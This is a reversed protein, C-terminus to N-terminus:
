ITIWEKRVAVGIGLYSGNVSDYQQTFEAFEYIDSHTRKIEDWYQVVGPCVISSIDHFVQINSNSRTLEADSKVGEYSHDGDIFVLDYFNNDIHNKFEESRTNMCLFNIDIDKRSAKYEPILKSINEIDVATSKNFEANFKKIYESTLVFTGGHRCGIEIYSNIKEVYKNIFVLYKSFQNPYQWIRLGLGGGLFLSLEAPQENINENNLGLVPIFLNELYGENSLEEKDIDEFTKKVQNIITKM